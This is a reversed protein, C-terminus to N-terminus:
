VTETVRWVLFRNQENQNVVSEVNFTRQGLRLRMQSNAGPFYHTTVTASVKSKIGGGSPFESGGAHEVAGWAKRLETWTEVPEGALEDGRHCVEIVFLTNVRLVGRAYILWFIHAGKAVTERRLSRANV